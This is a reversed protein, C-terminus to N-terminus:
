SVPRTDTAGGASFPVIMRIPRDPYNQAVVATISLGLLGAAALAALTRRQM